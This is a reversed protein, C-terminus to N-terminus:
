FIYLLEFKIKKNRCLYIFQKSILIIHCVLCLSNCNLISFLIKLEDLNEHNNYMKLCKIKWFLLIYEYTTLLHEITGEENCFTCKDM